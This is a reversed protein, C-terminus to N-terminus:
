LTMTYDKLAKQGWNFRKTVEDGTLEGSKVLVWTAFIMAGSENRGTCYGYMIDARPNVVLMFVGEVFNEGRKHRWEGIVQNGNIRGHATYPETKSALSNILIGERSPTIALDDIVEQHDLNATMIFRSRWAGVFEPFRITKIASEIRDCASRVAADGENRDIRVGDYYALTIGAFDSPVKVNASKDCVIFVRERGLRGMFLGCEFMVNDRPSAASEGRSEIVDDPGWIMVAFDYQSVIDFLRELVGQNLTFVGEDWVRAIACGRAELNDAILRAVQVSAGSSAIFLNIESM